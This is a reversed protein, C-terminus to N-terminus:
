LDTLLIKLYTTDVVEGKALAGIMINEIVSFGGILNYNQFIIGNKKRYHTLTKPDSQLLRTDQFFIEGSTITDLGSMLSLLTTKGSGSKGLLVTFSGTQIELNIKKLIHQSHKGNTITKDVDIFRLM